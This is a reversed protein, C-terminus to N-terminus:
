TVARSRAAIRQQLLVAVGAGALLGFLSGRWRHGRGAKAGKPPRTASAMGAVGIVTLVAATGGAVTALPFPGNIKIYAQVSAGKKQDDTVADTGYVHGYGLQLEKKSVKYTWGNCSAVSRVNDDTFNFHYYSASLAVLRPPGATFEKLAAGGLSVEVTEENASYPMGDWQKYYDYPTRNWNYAIFRPWVESFGGQIAKDVADLGGNSTTNDWMTRIVPNGQTSSVYWPLLYAGYEHADNKEDLKLRPNDLFYTALGHERNAAPYVRNEAWVATAECLWAYDGAYVCSNAQRKYVDGLGRSRVLDRIGDEAQFFFIICFFFFVM